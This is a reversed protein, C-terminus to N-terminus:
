LGRHGLQKVKNLWNLRFTESSKRIPSIATVKVPKIGCFELTVQKIQHIAPSHFMLWYYWRPTDATYIIRASKGKLLKDWWVSDKRYKFAFGPMLVRDFFGKLLAPVSGWWLPHIIVIHKAWRILQQANQLDSELIQEEKYGTKLNLDFKLDYLNIRKVQHEGFEAGNQYANALTNCYSDKNPHGNIILINKM